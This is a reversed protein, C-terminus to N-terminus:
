VTMLINISIRFLRKCITLTSGTDLLFTVTVNNITALVPFSSGPNVLSILPNYSICSDARVAERPTLANDGLALLKRIHRSRRLHSHVAGLLIARKDCRFCVVVRQNYSADGTDPKAPQNVRDGVGDEQKFNKAELKEMQTMLQSMM